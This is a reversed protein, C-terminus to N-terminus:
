RSEGAVFQYGVIRVYPPVGRVGNDAYENHNVLYANLRTAADPAADSWQLRNAGASARQAAVDATGRTVADPPSSVFSSAADEPHSADALPMSQPGAGDDFGRIGLIAVASISAVLALGPLPAIRLRRHRPRIPAVQERSLTENVKGAITEAGSVPGVNRMADGILHFRAWRRRLEPDDYLADVIRSRAADRLEDDAFASLRENADPENM